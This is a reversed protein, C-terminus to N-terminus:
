VPMSQVKGTMGFRFGCLAKPGSLMNVLSRIMTASSISGISVAMNVESSVAVSEESQLSAKIVGSKLFHGRLM